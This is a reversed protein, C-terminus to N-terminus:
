RRLLGRRTLRLADVDVKLWRRMVDRLYEAVIVATATDDQALYAYQLSIGHQTVNALTEAVRQQDADPMRRIRGVVALAARTGRLFRKAGAQEASTFTPQRGPESRQAEWALLVAGAAVDALNNPSGGALAELNRDFSARFQGAPLLGAILDAHSPPCYAREPPCTALLVGALRANNVETVVPDPAFRLTRLQRQTPKRQRKKANRKPQRSGGGGSGADRTNSLISQSLATQGYGAGLDGSAGPDWQAAAPAAAVLLFAIAVAIRM